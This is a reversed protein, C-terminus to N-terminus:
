VAGRVDAPGGSSTRASVHRPPLSHTAESQETEHKCSCAGALLDTASSAPLNLFAPGSFSVSGATLRVGPNQDSCRRRQREVTPENTRDPLGPGTQSVPYQRPSRTSDPLGPGTQSVPDQRPSRTRDPLGPGTQSVPDPRPSRTRDPLRASLLCPKTGKESPRPRLSTDRYLAIM